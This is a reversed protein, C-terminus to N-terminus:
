LELRELGGVGVPLYVVSADAPVAIPCVSTAASSAMAGEDLGFGIACACGIRVAFKAVRRMVRLSKLRPLEPIAASLRRGVEQRARDRGATRGEERRVRPRCRGPDVVPGQAQ